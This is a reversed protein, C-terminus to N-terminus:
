FRYGVGFMLRLAPALDARGLAFPLDGFALGARLDLTLSLQPDVKYEFGVAPEVPFLFGLNRGLFISLPVEVGAHIWFQPTVGVGVMLAAPLHLAYNPAYATRLYLAVGPMLRVGLNFRPQRLIGLRLAVGAKFGPWAGVSPIGELGYNFTAYGGVDFRSTNGHLLMAGIGPWGIEALVANRGSGVNGGNLLWSGDGQTPPQQEARAPAALSLTTVLVAALRTM